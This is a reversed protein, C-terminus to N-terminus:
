RWRSRTESRRRRRRPGRVKKEGWEGDEDDREDPGEVACQQAGELFAGLENDGPTEVSLHGRSPKTMQVGEDAGGTASWARRAGTRRTSVVIQAGRAQVEDDRRVRQTSVSRRRLEGPRWPERYCRSDRVVYMSARHYTLGLAQSLSYSPPIGAQGIGSPVRRCMTGSHDWDISARRSICHDDEGAFFLDGRRLGAALHPM